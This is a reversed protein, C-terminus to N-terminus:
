TAEERMNAWLTKAVAINERYGEKDSKKIFGLLIAQGRNPLAGFLVRIAGGPYARLRLERLGDGSELTKFLPEGGSFCREAALQIKNFVRRRNDDTLEKYWDRFPKTYTCQSCIDEITRHSSSDIEKRIEVGSQESYVNFLFYRGERNSMYDWRAISVKSQKWQEDTPLSLLVGDIMWAIGLINMDRNFGADPLYFDFSALENIAEESFFDLAPSKDEAENLFDLLDRLDHDAELDTLFDNYTYNEALLCDYIGKNHDKFYLAFRDNGTNLRLIGFCADLMLDYATERDDVSFSLTNLCVAHELIV